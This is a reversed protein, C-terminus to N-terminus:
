VSPRGSDNTVGVGELGEEIDKMTIPRVSVNKVEFGQEEKNKLIEPAEEM